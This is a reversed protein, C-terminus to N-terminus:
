NLRQRFIRKHIRRWNFVPGAPTHILEARIAEACEDVSHIRVDLGRSQLVADVEVSDLNAALMAGLYFAMQDDRKVTGEGKKTLREYDIAM